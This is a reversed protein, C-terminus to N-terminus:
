GARETQDNLLLRRRRLRRPMWLHMSLFWAFLAVALAWWGSDSVVFWVSLAIVLVWMLIAWRMKRFNELRHDILSVAARRVEPDEPIPGRTVARMVERQKSRPVDGMAALYRDSTRRTFPGMFLGFLVGQVAASIAAATASSGDVLAFAFRGLGFISGSYLALVWWPSRLLAGRVDLRSM